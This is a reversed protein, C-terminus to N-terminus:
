TSRSLVVSILTRVQIHFYVKPKMSTFLFLNICYSGVGRFLMELMEIKNINQQIQHNKKVKRHFFANKHNKRPFLTNVYDSYIKIM